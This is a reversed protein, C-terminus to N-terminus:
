FPYPDKETYDLNNVWGVNLGDDDFFVPKFHPTGGGPYDAPRIQWWRKDKSLFTRTDYGRSVPPDIGNLTLPPSLKEGGASPMATRARKEAARACAERRKRREILEKSVVIDIPSLDLTDDDDDSDSDPSKTLDIYDVAKRKSSM